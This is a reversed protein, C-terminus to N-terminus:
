SPIINTGTFTPLKVNLIKTMIFGKMHLARLSIRAPVCLIFHIKDRFPLSRHTSMIGTILSEQFRCSIFYKM